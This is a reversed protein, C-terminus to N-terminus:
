IKYGSQLLCRDPLAQAMIAAVPYVTQPLCPWNWLALGAGAILFDGRGAWGNVAGAAGCRLCTVADAAFNGASVQEGIQDFMKSALARDHAEDDRWPCWGCNPCAMVEAVILPGYNVVLGSIFEAGNTEMDAIQGYEPPVMVGPGPRYVPGQPDGLIATPDDDGAILGQARMDDAIRRMLASAGVPTPGQYALFTVRDGM